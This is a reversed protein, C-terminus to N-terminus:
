IQKAFFGHFSWINFNTSFAFATQLKCKKHQISILMLSTTLCNILMLYFKNIVFDCFMCNYKYQTFLTMLTCLWRNSDIAGFEYKHNPDTLFKDFGGTHHLFLNFWGNYIICFKKLITNDDFKTIIASYWGSGYRRETKSTYPSSACVSGSRILNSYLYNADDDPKLLVM